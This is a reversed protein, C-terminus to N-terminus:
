QHALNQLDAQPLFNIKARLRAADTSLRSLLEFPADTENPQLKLRPPGLLPRASPAIQHAIRGKRAFGIDTKPSLTTNLPVGATGSCLERSVGVQFCSNCSPNGGGCTRNATVM